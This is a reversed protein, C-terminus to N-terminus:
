EGNQGRPSHHLSSTRAKTCGQVTFAKKPSATSTRTKAQWTILEPQNKKPCATAVTPPTYKSLRTCVKPWFLVDYGLGQETDVHRRLALLFLVHSRLM